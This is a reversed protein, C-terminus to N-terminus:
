QVVRTNNPLQHALYDPLTDLSCSLWGKRVPKFLRNSELRTKTATLEDSKVFTSLVFPDNKTPYDAFKERIIQSARFDRYLQDVVLKTPTKHHLELIYIRSKGEHTIGLLGDPTCYKRNQEDWMVRNISPPRGHVKPRKPDAQYYHQWFDITAGVKDAWQRIAIHASVYHRRHHYDNSLSDHEAPIWLDKAQLDGGENEFEDEFEWYARDLGAQTLYYMYHNKGAKDSNDLLGYTLSQCLFSSKRRGKPLVEKGTTKDRRPALFPMAHNDLSAVSKALGLEVMQPKTLYHFYCLARLIKIAAPPLHMM